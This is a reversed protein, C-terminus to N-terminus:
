LNRYDAGAVDMVRHWHYRHIASARVPVKHNEYRPTHFFQYGPNHFWEGARAIGYWNSFMEGNQYWPQSYEAFHNVDGFSLKSDPIPITWGSNYMYEIM